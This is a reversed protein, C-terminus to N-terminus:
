ESLPKSYNVGCFYALRFSAVDGLTLSLGISDDGQMSRMALRGLITGVIWLGAAVLSMIGLGASPERLFDDPLARPRGGAM